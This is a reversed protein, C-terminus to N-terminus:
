RPMPNILKNADSLPVAAIGFMNWGLHKHEPRSVKGLRVQCPKTIERRWVTCVRDVHDGPGIGNALNKDYITPGEDLGITMGSDVFGNRLWEPVPMNNDLFVFLYCPASLDITVELPDAHKDDNFPMVYDARQLIEPLGESDISNWEHPRDVYALADEVLGGQVVRYFSMNSPDRINDRVDSILMPKKSDSEVRQGAIPFQNSGVSVLRRVEGAQSINIAQGRGLRLKKCHHKRCKRPSTELDVKGNFVAVDTAGSDSISVGFETGLDVVSTVPTDITFGIGNKGVRASFAGRDAVVRLPEILQFSAPGTVLLEIGQDFILEVQGAELSMTDGVSLRSLVAPATQDANWQVDLARTITAIESTNELGALNRAEPVRNAAKEPQWLGPLMTALVLSAAIALILQYRRKPPKPLAANLENALLEIKSEQATHEDALGCSRLTATDHMYLTYMQRASESSALLVSLEEAESGQPTELTATVLCHIRQYDADNSVSEKASDSSNWGSM